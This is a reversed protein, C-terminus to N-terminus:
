HFTSAIWGQPKKAAGKKKPKDPKDTVTKVPAPPDLVPVAKPAFQDIKLLISDVKSEIRSDAASLRTEVGRIEAELQTTREETIAIRKDYAFLASGGFHWFGIALAVMTVVAGYAVKADQFWRAVPLGKDVCNGRSLNQYVM